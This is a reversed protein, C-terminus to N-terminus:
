QSEKTENTENKKTHINMSLLTGLAALCTPPLLDILLNSLARHLVCIPTVGFVTRALTRSEWKILLCLSVCVRVIFFFWLVYLIGCHSDPIRLLLFFSWVWACFFDMLAWGFRLDDMGAMSGQTMWVRTICYSYIMQEGFIELFDRVSCTRTRPQFLGKQNSPTVDDGSM